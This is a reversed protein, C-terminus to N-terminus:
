QQLKSKANIIKKIGQIFLDIHDKTLPYRCIDTTILEKEYMRETVPCLGKPYEPKRYYFPGSCKHPKEQYIPYLYIPKIYGASVPLNEAQMAKVFADRSIGAKKADFKMSYLYYVHTAKPNIFPPTIFDFQALQETLYNALAVRHETLFDLKKLQELSLAALPETMRFNSGILPEYQQNKDQEMMQDMVVEGHNRILQARLAVRKDNTVLVGGEGSQMTKHRNLSFVGVDGITGSFKGDFMAAPAQANDEILKLNHEDAIKKLEDLAAPQGFLNVAIIAKTRETIKRKVDKPDINFTNEDIDAFVPIANNTLVCTATACMTYPPVIVEDDAGIGLAGVAAELATTASNMGVAYKVRFKEAFHDEFNRVESGGLFQPGAMALFGSLMGTRLVKTVANVEEDGINNPPPLKEKLLPKGGLIAPMQDDM